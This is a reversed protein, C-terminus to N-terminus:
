PDVVSNLAQIQVVSAEEFTDLLLSVVSSDDIRLGEGSDVLIRTAVLFLLIDREVPIPIRKLPIIKPHTTGFFLLRGVGCCCYRDDTIPQIYKRQQVTDKM